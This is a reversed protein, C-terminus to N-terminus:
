LSIMKGCLIKYKCYSNHYSLMLKFFKPMRGQTSHKKKERLESQKMKALMGISWLFPFTLCRSM